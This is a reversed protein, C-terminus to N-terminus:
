IIQNCLRNIKYLNGLIIVYGKKLPVSSSQFKDEDRWHISKYTVSKGDLLIIIKKNISEVVANSTKTYCLDKLSPFYFCM